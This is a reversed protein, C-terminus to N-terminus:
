NCDRPHHQKATGKIKTWNRFGEWLILWRETNSPWFILSNRLVYHVTSPTRAQLIQESFNIKCEELIRQIPKKMPKRGFFNSIFTSNKKLDDESLARKNNNKLFKRLINAWATPSTRKVTIVQESTLIDYLTYNVIEEMKACTHQPFSRETSVLNQETLLKYDSKQYCLSPKGPWFDWM